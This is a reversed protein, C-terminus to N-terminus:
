ALGFDPGSYNGAFPVVPSCKKMNRDVNEFYLNINLELFRFKSLCEKLDFLIEPIPTRTWEKM